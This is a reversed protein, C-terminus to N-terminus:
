DRGTRVAPAVGESRLMERAIADVRAVADVSEELIGDMEEVLKAVADDTEALTALRDWVQLMGNMALSAAAKIEQNAAQVQQSRSPPLEGGLLDQLQAELEKAAARRALAARLAHVLTFAHLNSKIIYDYAGHQLAQLAVEQDELGTLVIVPVEPVTMHLREVTELGHSDPLGLDLIVVDMDGPDLADFAAKLSGVQEVAFDADKTKNLITGIYRADAPNDEVLLVRIQSAM